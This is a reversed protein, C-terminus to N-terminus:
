GAGGQSLDYQNGHAPPAGHSLFQANAAAVGQTMAAALITTQM